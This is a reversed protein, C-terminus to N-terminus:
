DTSEHLHASCASAIAILAVLVVRMGEHQRSRSPTYLHSTTRCWRGPTAETVARSCPALALSLTDAHAEVHHDGGVEVPADALLGAQRPRPQATVELVELSDRAVRGGALAVRDDHAALGPLRGLDA